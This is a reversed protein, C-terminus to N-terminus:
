RIATQQESRNYDYNYNEYEGGETLSTINSLIYESLNILYSQKCWPCNYFVINGTIFVNNFHGCNCQVSIM